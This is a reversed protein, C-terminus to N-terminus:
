ETTQCKADGGKVTAARLREVEALAAGLKPSHHQCPDGPRDLSCGCMGHPSLSKIKADMAEVEALLEEREALLAPLATRSLAALELNIRAKRRGNTRRAVFATYNRSRVLYTEENHYNTSESIRWPGPTAADCARKWEEITKPNIM